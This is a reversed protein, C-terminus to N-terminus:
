RRVLKIFTNDAIYKKAQEDDMNIVKQAFEDLSETVKKSLKIEEVNGSDVNQVNVDSAKLCEDFMALIKKKQKLIM